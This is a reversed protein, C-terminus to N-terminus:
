STSQTTGLDIYDLLWGEPRVDYKAMGLLFHELFGPTSRWHGEALFLDRYREPHKKYLLADKEFFKNREASSERAIDRRHAPHYVRVDNRYPVNGLGQLRWGFDTDERFHPEDFRLDFGDLCQFAENTAMLNATMFGLGTFAVNSVPRWDPDDLHDSEVRGEVGVLTRDAILPVAASLWDPLPECDDDTFAIMRGTAIDGGTNRAKVAGKVPTHIYIVPFTRQCGADGWPEASQDIVIVEFDKEIQSELCAFLRGLHEPREYSPIVVSFTPRGERHARLAAKLMWGLKPSIREWAYLDEVLRRANTAMEVREAENNLLNRLATLTQARSAIRFVPKGTSVIGRAGPATTLIPVRAAMFDFMKISTGSGQALPNLAVDAIDLWRAKEEEELVGTLSVNAPLPLNALHAGCGGVIAFRVDPMAMALETAIFRAADNNPGYNSGVFICTRAEKVGLAERAAAVEATSHRQRAFAFIGNPVVRLKAMPLGYLRAFTERDDHSCALVLDARLCLAYEDAVVNRLVDGSNALDGHLDTRLVSEVNQSDYVVLQGPRLKDALPPYAWPHSFVVIDAEEIYAAATKLYENSLHVQSSFLCDIVVRGGMAEAAARAAAHHADSLPVVIERLGPTLQHDRFAEGAWDYSGIYTAQIDDGLAHYLGLLRQRGGGVAPTIPQMDIVIVKKQGTM